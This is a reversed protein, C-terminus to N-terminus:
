LFPCNKGKSYIRCIQHRFEPVTIEWKHEDTKHSKRCRKGQFDRLRWSLSDTTVLKLLFFFCIKSNSYKQHKNYVQFSPHDWTLQKMEVKLENKFAPCTIYKCQQFPFRVETFSTLIIKHFTIVCM